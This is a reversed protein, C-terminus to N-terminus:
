QKSIEKVTIPLEQDGPVLELGLTAKLVSNISDVDGGAVKFRADYTGDIGTQNIVPTELGTALVYALDDMSGNMLIFIGHWYGRKVAHTSASPSLLTKSAGTARLIYARKTATKVQIQLHLAALVTQQVAQGAVSQPVDGTNVHLNYRGEPLADKLVYRNEFVDFVDTVLDDADDGLVDTGTPPHEVVSRKADPLAKTVAVSFLAAEGNASSSGSATVIEEAPKFAVKKGEAVAQLDGTTVSDIETVAVVKGNGDVIVTTPRSKIGYQSFVKGSADVGVWGAMKKKTLFTRVAKLDEDDISIFQFKAADLSGVLQNIHPLSAICPSCWTAWFELVVVKGKLSTWDARGGAPAQLLTLSDLAPAATGKAPHAQLSAAGTLAALVAVLGSRLVSRSWASFLMDRHLM